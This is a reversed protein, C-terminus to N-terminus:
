AQHMPTYRPKGALNFLSMCLCIYFYALSCCFMAMVFPIWVHRKQNRSCQETYVNVKQPLPFQNNTAHKIWSLHWLFVKKNEKFLTLILKFDNKVTQGTWGISEGKHVFQRINSLTFYCFLTYL